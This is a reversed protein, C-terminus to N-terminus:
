KIEIKDSDNTKIKPMTIELIGNNYKANIKKTNAYEPLPVVRYYQQYSREQYLVNEKNETNTKKIIAKIILNNDKVRLDMDEKNIGPLEVIVKIENKTENIDVLPERVNNKIDFGKDINSFMSEFRKMFSFPDFPDFDRM